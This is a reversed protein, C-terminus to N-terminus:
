LLATALSPRDPARAPCAPAVPTSARQPGASAPLVEKLHAFLMKQYKEFAPALASASVLQGDVIAMVAKLLAVLQTHDKTLKEPVKIRTQMFPTFIADEHMHHEHIHANHNAFWARLSAIEWEELNRKGLTGLVKTMKACESRINCHELFWGDTEMPATWLSAKDPPYNAPDKAYKLDTPTISVKINGYAGPPAISM